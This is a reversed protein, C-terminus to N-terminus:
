LLWAVVRFEQAVGTDGLIAVNVRLSRKADCSYALSILMVM